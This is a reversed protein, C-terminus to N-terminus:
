TSMSAFVSLEDWFREGFITVPCNLCVLSTTVSGNVLTDNIMSGSMTSVELNLRSVCEASLFELDEEEVFEPFLM